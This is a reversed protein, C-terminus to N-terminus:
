RRPDHRIFRALQSYFEEPNDEMMFHGSGEIEVQQVERTASVTPHDRNQEGYFYTKRCPLRLFRDLLTGSDSWDVLSRASRYYAAPSALELACDGTTTSRYEPLIEAEFTEFPVEAARRSAFGCDAAILNGEVNAFSEAADLIQPPLLLAIAGGMSHAVLHLRAYPIHQLLGSCIDAHLEMTYSAAEPRSSDGFGLLDVALYSYDRLGAEDELRRYTTHSCGLGHICFLLDKGRQSYAAAIQHDGVQFFRLTM